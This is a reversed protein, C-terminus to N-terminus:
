PLSGQVRFVRAPLLAETRQALKGQGGTVEQRGCGDPACTHATYPLLGRCWLGPSLFLSLCNLQPVDHNLSSERHTFTAKNSGGFAGTMPVCLCTAALLGPFRQGTICVNRTVTNSCLHGVEQLFCIVSCVPIWRGTIQMTKHQLTAQGCIKGKQLQGSIQQLRVTAFESANHKTQAPCSGATPVLPPIHGNLTWPNPWLPRPSSAPVCITYLTPPPEDVSM